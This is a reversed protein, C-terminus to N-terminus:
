YENKFIIFKKSLPPPHNEFDFTPNFDKNPLNASNLWGQFVITLIITMWTM